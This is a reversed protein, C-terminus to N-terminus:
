YQAGNTLNALIKGIWIKVSLISTYLSYIHIAVCMNFRVIFMYACVKMVHVGCSHDDKQKCHSKTIVKWKISKKWCESLYQHNSFASCIRLYM